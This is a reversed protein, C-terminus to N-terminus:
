DATAVNWRKIELRGDEFIAYHKLHTDLCVNKSKPAKKWRVKAAPTHGLLQNLGPIPIFEGWDMWNLGGIEQDGWRSNGRGLLFHHKGHLLSDWADACLKDIRSRYSEPPVDALWAPYFGAHTVLWPGESSELWAHLRFMRWNRTPIIANITIWKVADYGPCLFRRNERGWGYAMDHNGLLCTTNPANLWENVQKATDAADTMGTNVDDFYDGLLLLRDHPERQIIQNARKIKDHIDPVILWRM